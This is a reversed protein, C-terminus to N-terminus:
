QVKWGNQVALARAKVPDNGAAQYFQQVTAKDILKGGGQPLAGAQGGQLPQVPGRAPAPSYRGLVGQSEPSLQRELPKGMDAEYGQAMKHYRAGLLQATAGIAGERQADSLNSSFNAAMKARDAEGGTGGIVAKSVEPAVTQVIADYTIQPSQGVQAGLSNALRNLMQVDGSKMAQGATSITNLHALATDTSTIAKGSAGSASFDQTIKNRKPFQTADFSPNVALVQRLLNQGAPSALTRPSPPPIQYGAIAAATPNVAPKGDPGMVPQVPQGNADLGAGITANFKKNEIGLRGQEVSLRGAGQQEEVKNHAATQAANAAAQGTVAQQDPTMGLQRLSAMATPIPKGTADFVQQASPLAGHPVKADNLIQNYAAPTPATTLQAIVNQRAKAQADATVGPLEATLKDASTKATLARAAATTEEAGVTRNKQENEAYQQATIAGNRHDTVWQQGPYQTPVQDPTVGPIQLM